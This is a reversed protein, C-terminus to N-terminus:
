APAGELGAGCGAWVLDPSARRLGCIAGDWKRPLKGYLLSLAQFRQDQGLRDLQYRVNDSQLQYNGPTGRFWSLIADVSAAAPPPSPGPQFPRLFGDPTGLGGAAGGALHQQQIQSVGPGFGMAAPGVAATAANKCTQGCYDYFGSCDEKAFALRRVGWILQCGPFACPPAEPPAGSASM